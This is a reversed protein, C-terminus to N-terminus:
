ECKGKFEDLAVRAKEKLKKCAEKRDCYDATEVYQLVQDGDIFITAYIEVTGEKFDLSGISTSVYDQTEILFTIGVIFAVISISAILAVFFNRM